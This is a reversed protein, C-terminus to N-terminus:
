KSVNNYEKMAATASDEDVNASSEVFEVENTFQIGKRCHRSNTNAFSGYCIFFM